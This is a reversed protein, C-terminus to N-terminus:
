EAAEKNAELPATPRPSNMDFPERHLTRPVQRDERNMPPKPWWKNEWEDEWMDVLQPKVYRAFMEMNYDAVERKMNGYQLLTMFQGCNLNRMGEKIQDAVEDPSGIIIYGKEVLEEMSLKGQFSRIEDKTAARQTQSSMKARLTAETIYGPAAAWRPDVKLNADYFYEGAERYLEMAMKKNEAVGIFQLFGFRFPNRDRGVRACTEWYGDVAAQAAKYGFYSTYTYCYDNEAAWQWTEIAGGGPVWIPPHPKQIPSIFPNVFPQKYYNGNYAFMKREKWAKMIIEYAEYYKDRASSPNQGMAFVTDFPTGVPFGAILRGGSMVDVTAMDEAIRQPPDYCAISTGLIVVAARSTTRALVTAMMQPTSMLAYGNSHHENVCVGDFGLEDAFQLQDLYEHYMRHAEEHKFLDSDIDVWVSNYNDSFNEPLAGYPMLHFFLVKM